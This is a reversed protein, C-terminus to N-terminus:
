RFGFHPAERKRTLGAQLWGLNIGIRNAAPDGWAYAILRGGDGELVRLALVPVQTQEYTLRALEIAWPLPHGDESQLRIRGGENHLRVGRRAQWGDEAAAGEAGGTKWAIWGDYYSVKRNKHHEREPDGFVLQGTEDRAVDRIWIEEATLRLDDHITIRKGSRPSVFTCAGADMRGEFHEGTWHWYVECGPISRLTGVDIAALKEPHLHLDVVAAEDPFSFITLEIAQRKANPMLRYLRQRYIRGGEEPFSQQVYFVHEGLAPLPVPAFIHHLREHPKEGRARARFVQEHNDYEGPFWALFRALDEELTRAADTGAFTLSLALMAGIVSM